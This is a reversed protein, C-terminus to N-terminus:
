LHCVPKEASLPGFPRSHKAPHYSTSTYDSALKETERWSAGNIVRSQEDEDARGFDGRLDYAIDEVESDEGDSPLDPLSTLQSRVAPPM